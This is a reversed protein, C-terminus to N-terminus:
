NKFFWELYDKNPLATKLEVVIPTQYKHIKKINKEMQSKTCCTKILISVEKQNKVKKNELYFSDVSNILNVCLAKRNKLLYNAIIKADKSNSCTSYFIRFKKKMIFHDPRSSKFWRGGTGWVSVSGFQAM